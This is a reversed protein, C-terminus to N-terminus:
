FNADISGNANLRAIRRVSVGSFITFTGGIIIKGDAQLAIAKVDANAGEIINTGNDVSNFAADLSGPQAMVEQGVTASCFLLTAFIFKLHQKLASHLQQM